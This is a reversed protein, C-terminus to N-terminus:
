SYLNSGMNEKGANAMSTIDRLMERKEEDTNGYMIQKYELNQNERVQNDILGALDHETIEILPKSFVLPM